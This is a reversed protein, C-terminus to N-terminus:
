SASRVNSAIDTATLTEPGTTDATPVVSVRGIVLPCFLRVTCLAM